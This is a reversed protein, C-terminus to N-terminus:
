HPIKENTAFAAYTTPCYEQYLHQVLTKDGPVMSIQEKNMTNWLHLGYSDNFTPFSKWIEYYRRWQPYSIPYFRQPNLFSINGCVIDEIGDFKSFDCYNKLVRTFLQPGQHGWVAGKYNKVFDTMAVWPFEHHTSLGFIANNSELPFQAALFNHGPIPRISIIDSDMYIGGYKWILALRCGDSSVHIWYQELDRNTKQFWSLLPTDKFVEELKLPFIYINPFSSLTPFKRQINEEDYKTNVDSLGKIFFVVPREPYVRAASELACLVLAPPQTRDGTELFIIGNGHRLVYLPNIENLRINKANTSMKSTKSIGNQETVLNKQTTQQPSTPKISTFGTRTPEQFETMIQVPTLNSLTRSDRFHLISHLINRQKMTIGYFFGFLMSVLLLLAIQLARLM